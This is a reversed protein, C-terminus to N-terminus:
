FTSDAGCFVEAQQSEFRLSFKREVMTYLISNLSQSFTNCGNASYIQVCYEKNVNGKQWKGACGCRM